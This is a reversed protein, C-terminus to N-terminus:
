AVRGVSSGTTEEIARPSCVSKKKRAVRGCDLCVFRPSRVLEAYRGPHKRLLKKQKCLTKAM